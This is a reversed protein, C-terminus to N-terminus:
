RLQELSVVLLGLYACFAKLYVETGRIHISNQEM